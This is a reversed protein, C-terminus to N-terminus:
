DIAADHEEMEEANRLRCVFGGSSNSGLSNGPIIHFKGFLQKAAALRAAIRQVSRLYFSKTLSIVRRVIARIPFDGVHAVLDRRHIFRVLPCVCDVKFFRKAILM